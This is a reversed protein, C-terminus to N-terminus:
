RLRYVPQFIDLLILSFYFKGSKFYGASKNIALVQIVLRIIFLLCVVSLLLIDLPILAKAVSVGFLIYFIYRSYYEFLFRTDKFGKFHKKANSYSRCIQRWLSYTYLSNEVFSDQSLSVSTNSSDMIKNIFVKEGSEINLLSSFGKNDFFLHRNFAINSYVGTYPKNKISMSLYQLSFILNDFRAMRNYGKKDKQYYSYGLVVEKGETFEEVMSAIWRNTDPRSYPETFLLIDGKAAKVGLTLSLKRRSLLKDNSLPLYTSYLNAYKLKLSELLIDSEDTSGDNVVIVEFDPYDQDLIFPLNKALNESENVSVIIVSVKPTSSKGYKFDEGRDILRAKALPKKYYAQYFYIQILFFLFFLALLIIDVSDLELLSEIQQLFEEM